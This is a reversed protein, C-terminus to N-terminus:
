LEPKTWERPRRGWLIYKTCFFGWSNTNTDRFGKDQTPSKSYHRQYLWCHSRRNDRNCVGQRELRLVLRNQCPFLGQRSLFRRLLPLLYLLSCWIRVTNPDAILLAKLAAYCRWCARVRLFFARSGVSGRFWRNIASFEKRPLCVCWFFRFFSRYNMFRSEHNAGNRIGIRLVIYAAQM